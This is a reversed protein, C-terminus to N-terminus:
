MTEDLDVFTSLYLVINAKVGRALVYKVCIECM